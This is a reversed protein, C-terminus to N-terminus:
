HWYLIQKPFFEDSEVTHEDFPFQTEGFLQEQLEPYVPVSHWFLMQKPIFEVFEETQEPNPFQIEGFLQEQLAPYV